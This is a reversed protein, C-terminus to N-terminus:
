IGGLRSAIDCRHMRLTDVRHACHPSPPLAACTRQISHRVPARSIWLARLSVPMAGRHHGCPECVPGSLLFHPYGLGKASGVPEGASYLTSHPHKKVRRSLTTCTTRRLGSFPHRVRRPPTLRLAAGGAESPACSVGLPLAELSFQPADLMFQEHPNMSPSAGAGPPAQTGRIV